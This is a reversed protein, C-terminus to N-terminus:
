RSCSSMAEEFLGRNAKAHSRGASEAHGIFGFLKSRRGCTCVWRAWTSHKVAAPSPPQQIRVTHTPTATAM